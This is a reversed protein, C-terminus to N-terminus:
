HDTRDTLLKMPALDQVKRAFGSPTNLTHLYRGPPRLYSILGGDAFEVLAIPARAAQSEYHASQAVLEDLEPACRRGSCEPGPLRRHSAM